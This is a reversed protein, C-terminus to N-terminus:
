HKIKKREQECYVTYKKIEQTHTHAHKGTVSVRVYDKTIQRLSTLRQEQTEQQNQFNIELQKRFKKECEHNKYLDSDCRELINNISRTFSEDM